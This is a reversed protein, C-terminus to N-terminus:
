SWSFAFKGFVGRYTGLGILRGGDRFIKEVLTENLIASPYITLDFELSWPTDLCPRTKPNPIGKPLRAVHQKVSFGDEGFARFVVPKGGRLFPIEAQEIALCSLLDAAVAKYERKDLVRKPASETNQATLFSMINLAPLVLTKNPTLYMKQEVSLATKNDGSYQDFLIPTLGTLTVHKRIAKM